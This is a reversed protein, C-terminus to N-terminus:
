LKRVKDKNYKDFDMSIEKKSFGLYLMYIGFLEILLGYFLQSYPNYEPYLFREYKDDTVLKLTDRQKLDECTLGNIGMIKEVHIKGKYEFKIYIDKHGWRELDYSCEILKVPVLYGEKMIRIEEVNTKLIFPIGVTFIVGMIKFFTKM